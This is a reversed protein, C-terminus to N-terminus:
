SLSALLQRAESAEAFDVKLKLAQELARKAGAKDGTKSLALALRYHYSPKGPAREISEQFAPVALAPLDKKLYIFGLTDSVDPHQPLQQKATQALQLAMDLDNNEEAYMWALNNAAVAAKADVQIIREYRQRADARNGQTQQIMAAMTSAAVSSPQREALRDYEALAEPLRRQSLYLRGLLEFAALNSADVTIAKKLVEEAKISQNAAAYAQAALMLLPGSDPSAALRAEVRGTAATPKKEALDLAVLGSLADLSDADLSLAQEFARRAAARDNKGAAVAGAVAHVIAAEPYRELLPRVENEARQFEGRALFGRALFLRAVPDQPSNAVAEQALQVSMDARGRRLEIRALQLQAPVAKPNIKLVENFSNVAKEWENTAAFISGKLYHAASSNPESITAEDARVLAEPYKGEAILFRTKALLGVADKPHQQIVGDIIKHAEDRRNQGYAIGALRAGAEVELGPKKSAAELLPLAESPRDMGLYYDALALVATDDTGLEALRKLYPEAKPARGGSMYFTALARNVVDSAEDVEAARLLEAEAEPQRGSQWYFNGLALHATANKPDAEVAQQFAQEAETNRGRAFQFAGLNAYSGSQSPDLRIAEQVDRIAGDMDKLGALANARLIQASVSKVDKALVKEARLKAQEFEGALLLIAGAKLQADANDPLLDAARVFEGLADRVRETAAYSEALKLRAEGFQGDLRVANRYEVIAEAYKKDEFLRNGNEFYRQKAVAPDDRCAGLIVTLLALVVCTSRTFLKMLLARRSLGKAGARPAGGFGDVYTDAARNQVTLPGLRARM